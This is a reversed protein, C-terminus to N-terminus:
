VQPLGQAEAEQINPICTSTVLGLEASQFLSEKGKVPVNRFYEGVSWSTLPRQLDGYKTDSFRCSGPIKKRLILKIIINMDM